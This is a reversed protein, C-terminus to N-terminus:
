KKAGSPPVTPHNPPMEGSPPAGASRPIQPMAPTASPSNGMGPPMAMGGHPAAGGTARPKVVWRNGQKELNYAMTMGSGAVKSDKPTISVTAEAENGKFNVSTVDINMAAVNLNARTSLHDVVAQRVADKNDIGRNCAALALLLILLPTRQM